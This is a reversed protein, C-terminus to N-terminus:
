YASISHIFRKWKRQIKKRRFYESYDCIKIVDSNVAGDIIILKKKELQVNVVINDAALDSLHVTNNLLYDHLEALLVDLQESSLCNNKLYYELTKSELGDHDHILDFILGQGKSTNITGHFKALHTHLVGTKKYQSYYKIERKAQKDKNVHPRLVKICLSPKLPHRYCARRGGLEILFDESLSILQQPYIQIMIQM